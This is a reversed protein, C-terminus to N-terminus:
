FGVRFPSRLREAWPWQQRFDQASFGRRAHYPSLRLIGGACPQTRYCGGRPLVGIVLLTSLGVGKSKGVGSCRVGLSVGIGECLRLPRLSPTVVQLVEVIVLSRKQIGVFEALDSREEGAGKSGKHNM